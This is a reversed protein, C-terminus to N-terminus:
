VGTGTALHDVLRHPRPHGPDHAHWLHSGLTLLLVTIGISLAAKLRRAHRRDSNVWNDDTCLPPRDGGYDIWNSVQRRSWCGGALAAMAMCKAPWSEYETTM